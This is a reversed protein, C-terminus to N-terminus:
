ARPRRFSSRTKWTSTAAYVFMTMLSGAVTGAVVGCLARQRGLEYAIGIAEDVAHKVEDDLQGYFDNIKM